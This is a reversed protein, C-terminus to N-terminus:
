SRWNAAPRAEREKTLTPCLFQGFQEDTKKKKHKRGMACFVRKGGKRKKEKKKTRVARPKEPLTRREKKGSIKEEREGLPLGLIVERREEKEGKKGKFLERRERATRKGKKRRKWHKKGSAFHGPRGQCRTKREKKKKKKKAL